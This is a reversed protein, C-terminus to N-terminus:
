FLSHNRDSTVCWKSATAESYSPPVPEKEPVAYMNHASYPPVEPAYTPPTNPFQTPYPASTFQQQQQLGYPTTTTSQFVTVTPHHTTVTAMNSSLSVTPVATTNNEAFKAMQFRRWAIFLCMVGWVLVVVAPGTVFAITSISVVLLVVGIFVFIIGAGIFCRGQARIADPNGYNRCRQVYITTLYVSDIDHLYRGGSFAISWCIHSTQLILGKYWINTSIAWCFEISYRYAIHVSFYVSPALSARAPQILNQVNHRLHKSIDDCMTSDNSLIEAGASNEDKSRMYNDLSINFSLAITQHLRPTALPFYLFDFFLRLRSEIWTIKRSLTVMVTLHGTQKSVADIQTYLYTYNYISSLSRPCCMRKLCFSRNIAAAIDFSLPQHTSFNASYVYM